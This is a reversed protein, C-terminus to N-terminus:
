WSARRSCKWMGSSSRRRVHHPCSEDRRNKSVRGTSEIMGQSAVSGDMDPPSRGGITQLRGIAFDKSIWRSGRRRSGGRGVADRADGNFAELGEVVLLADFDTGQGNEGARVTGPLRADDLREQQHLLREFRGIIWPRQQQIPRIHLECARILNQGTSALCVAIPSKGDFKLHTITRKNACLERHTTIRVEDHLFGVIEDIGFTILEMM